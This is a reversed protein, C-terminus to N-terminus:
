DRESEGARGKARAARARKRVAAEYIRRLSAGHLRMAYRKKSLKEERREGRTEGADGDSM